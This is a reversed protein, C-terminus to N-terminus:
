FSPSEEPVSLGRKNVASLGRQIGALIESYDVQDYCMTELHCERKWCPGCTAQSLVKVGRDFLDVENSCTPGFWAVVWCDLAIAMHMGLSDGTVVVDCAGVSLLGDRLGRDTPSSLVNSDAAILRNRANDESGGLLVITANPIRQQILKILERHGEISLKKYPITPACGTNIGIVHQNEGLWNKRRRGIEFIEEQSMSLLYPDQDYEIDLAESVLDLESRKNVKFKEHDNLGLEWLHKAHRNAPIIGGTATSTFGYRFDISLEQILGTAALSKDICYGIDFSQAKLTMFGSFDYTVLQDIFPNNELLQNAPAQTVWTIHANPFKRRIPKLLATSRLVAGLAGLHVILVRKSPIDKHPCSATCDTKFSCPRYGTYYRCNTIAM